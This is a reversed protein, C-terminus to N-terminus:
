CEIVGTRSLAPSKLGRDPEKGRPFRGGIIWINRGMCWSWMEGSDTLIVPTLTSRGDEQHLDFAPINDLKLLVAEQKSWLGGTM